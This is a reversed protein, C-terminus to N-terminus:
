YLWLQLVVQSRLKLICGELTNKLFMMVSLASAEFNKIKLIALM